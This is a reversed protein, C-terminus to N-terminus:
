NGIGVTTAPPQSKGSNTQTKKGGLIESFSAALNVVSSM